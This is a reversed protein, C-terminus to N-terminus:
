FGRYARQFEARRRASQAVVLKRFADLGHKDIYAAKESESMDDLTREAPRTAVTRPKFSDPTEARLIAVIEKATLSPNEMATEKVLPMIPIPEFGLEAITKEAELEVVRVRHQETDQSM